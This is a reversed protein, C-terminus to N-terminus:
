YWPSFMREPRAESAKSDIPAKDLVRIADWNMESSRLLRRWLRDLAPPLHLVPRCDGADLIATEPSGPEIEYSELATAVDLMHEFDCGWIAQSSARTIEDAQEPTVPLLDWVVRAGLMDEGVPPALHVPPLYDVPISLEGIKLPFLDWEEVDSYSAMEDLYTEASEQYYPITDSFHLVVPHQVVRWIGDPSQDVMPPFRGSRGVLGAPDPLPWLTLALGEEQELLSVQEPRLEVGLGLLDWEGRRARLPM